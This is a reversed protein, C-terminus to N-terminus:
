RNLNTWGLYHVYGHVLPEFTILREVASGKDIEVCSWEAPPLDQGESIEEKIALPGSNFFKLLEIFLIEYNNLNLLRTPQQHTM